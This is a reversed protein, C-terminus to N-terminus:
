PRAAAAIAAEKAYRRKRTEPTRRGCSGAQRFSQRMPHNMRAIATKVSIQQASLRFHAAVSPV